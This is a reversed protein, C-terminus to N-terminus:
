RNSSLTPGYAGIRFATAVALGVFIVNRLSCFSAFLLIGIMAPRHSGEGSHLSEVRQKVEADSLKAVEDQAKKRAKQQLEFEADSASKSPKKSPTDTQEEALEDAYDSTLSKILEERPSGREASVGNDVMPLFIFLVIGLKALVIGGLAMLASIIGAPGPHSGRTGAYMGLGTLGGLGWAVYGSEYGTAKAIGFWVAAGLLAGIGGATVGSMLPGGPIRIGKLAALPGGSARESKGSGSGSHGGAGAVLEAGCSFCVPTGIEVPLRCKPCPRTARQPATTTPPAVTLGGFLDDEGAAPTPAPSKAAPVTQISQCQPCKVRKGGSSAPVRLTKACETCSFKIKDDPASGNSERDASPTAVTFPQSCKPCKGKKGVAAARVRFRAACGTCTIPLTATAQEPM